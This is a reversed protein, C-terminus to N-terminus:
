NISAADLAGILLDEPIAFSDDKTEPPGALHGRYDLGRQIAILWMGTGPNRGVRPGGMGPFFEIVKTGPKCWATHALGAGHPGIIAEAQRFYQVQTAMPLGKLIVREFGRAELVPLISEENQVRRLKADNRSVYIRKPFGAAPTDAAIFRGLDELRAMGIAPRLALPNYPEPVGARLYPVHAAEGARLSEIAEIGYKAKFYDLTIQQFGSREANVILGLGLDRGGCELFAILPVVSEFLWHVIHGRAPIPAMLNYYPRTSPLMRLKHKRARVQATWNPGPHLALLFGDKMMAGAWGTVTTDRLGYFHQVIQLPQPLSVGLRVLCDPVPDDIAPSPIALDEFAAASIPQSEIPLLWRQQLAPFARAAQDSLVYRVSRLSLKSKYIRGKYQLSVM